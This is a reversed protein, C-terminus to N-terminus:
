NCKSKLNLINELIQELYCMFRHSCLVVLIGHRQKIGISRQGSVTNDVERM